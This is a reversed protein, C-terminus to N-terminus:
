ESENERLKFKIAILKCTPAIRTTSLHTQLVHVLQSLSHAIHACTTISATYLIHVLQKVLLTCVHGLQARTHVLLEWTQVSLTYQSPCGVPVRLENGLLKWCQVHLIDVIPCKKTKQSYLATELKHM